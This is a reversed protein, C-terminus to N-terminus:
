VAAELKARMAALIAARLAPKDLAHGDPAYLHCHANVGVGRLAAEAAEGQGWLSVFVRAGQGRVDELLTACSEAAGSLDVVVVDASDRLLLETLGRWAPSATVPKCSRAVGTASALNRGTLDRLSFGLCRYDAASTIKHAFPGKVAAADWRWVHGFGSLETGVFACFSETFASREDARVVLLRAPTLRWASLVIWGFLAAAFVALAPGILPWAIFCATLFAAGAAAAILLLVARLAASWGFFLGPGKELDAARVYGPVSLRWPALAAGRAELSARAAVRGAESHDPNHGAASLIESETRELAANVRREDPNDPRLASLTRMANLQKRWNKADAGGM